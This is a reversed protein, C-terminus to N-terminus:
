IGGSRRFSAAISQVAEAAPELADVSVDADDHTQEPDGGVEGVDDDEGALVHYGRGVVQQSGEGGGVGEGHDGVQGVGGVEVAQRGWVLVVSVGLVPNEVQEEVDVERDRGVRDGHPQGDRQGDEPVDDDAMVRDPCSEAAESPRFQRYERHEQHCRDDTNRVIYDITQHVLLAPVPIPELLVSEDGREVGEEIEPQERDNQLDSRADKQGNQARQEEAGHLRCVFTSSSQFRHAPLVLRLFRVLVEPCGGHQDRDNEAEDHSFKRLADEREEASDVVRHKSLDVHGEAVDPIQEPQEVAGDIEHEVARHALLEPFCETADEESM